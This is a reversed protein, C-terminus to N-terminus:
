HRGTANRRLRGYRWNGLLLDQHHQGDRSEDTKDFHDATKWTLYRAAEIRMKLDALMYGVNQYEIVPHPGSRSDTRAFEYAIDFAARMRGVCAAGIPTCTWSFGYQVLDMGDGPKGINKTAPM